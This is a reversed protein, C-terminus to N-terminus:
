FSVQFQLVIQSWLHGFFFISAFHKFLSSFLHCPKMESPTKEKAICKLCIIINKEVCHIGVTTFPQPHVWVPDFSSHCLLIVSPHLCPLLNM